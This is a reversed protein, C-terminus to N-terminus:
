ENDGISQTLKLGRAKFLKQSIKSVLKFHGFKGIAM